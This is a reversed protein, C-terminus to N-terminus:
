KEDWKEGKQTFTWTTDLLKDTWLAFGMFGIFLLMSRGNISEPFYLITGFFIAVIFATTGRVIWRAFLRSM